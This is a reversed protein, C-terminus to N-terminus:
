DEGDSDSEGLKGFTGKFEADLENGIPTTKYRHVVVHSGHREIYDYIDNIIRGAKGSTGDLPGGHFNITRM